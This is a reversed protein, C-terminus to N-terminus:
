FEIDMDKEYGTDTTLYEFLMMQKTKEDSEQITYWWGDYEDFVIKRLLWDKYHEQSFYDIYGNWMCEHEVQIKIDDSYDKLYFYLEQFIWHNSRTDFEFRIIKSWDKENRTINEINYWSKGAISSNFDEWKLIKESTDDDFIAPWHFNNKSNQNHKKLREFFKKEQEETCTLEVTTTYYHAM